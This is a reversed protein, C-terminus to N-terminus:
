YCNGHTRGQFAFCTGIKRVDFEDMVKLLRITGTINNEYYRLPQQVSEGVAKLGAFHIVADFPKGSETAEQFLQRTGVQDMLDVERFRLVNNLGKSKRTEKTLEEIRDLVKKSSNVLNDVITVNYGVNLMEVVTHSGIFGTGGTVLIHSM